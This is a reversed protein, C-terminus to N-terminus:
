SISNDDKEEEYGEEFFNNEESFEINNTINYQSLASTSSNSPIGNPENINYFQNFIENFYESDVDTHYSIRRNEFIRESNPIYLISNNNDNIINDEDSNETENSSNEEEEEEESNEEEEEESSYDEEESNMIEQHTNNFISHDLEIEEKKCHTHLFNEVKDEFPPHKDMFYVYQKSILQNKIPCFIKIIDIKKRGFEKNYNYLISLKNKLKRLAFSQKDISLSYKGTLYLLLYPKMIGILTKKPFLKDIKIKKFYHIPNSNLMVLIDKYLVNICQTNLYTSITLERLYYENDDKFKNLHFNSLFYLHFVIPVIKNYNLLHFYISYLISKNFPINNYPNKCSLPEAFFFPANTLSMQIINILDSLIFLYRNNNQYICITNKAKEDISNLYLDEKSVVPAKKYKYMFAFKNLSLYIKQIQQIKNMFLLKIDKEIFINNLIDKIYKYKYKITNKNILIYNNLLNNILFINTNYLITPDMPNDIKKDKNIIINIIDQIIKM